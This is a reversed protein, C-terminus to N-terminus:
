HQQWYQRSANKRNCLGSASSSCRQRERRREGTDRHINAIRWSSIRSAELAARRVKKPHIHQVSFGMMNELRIKIYTTNLSLTALQFFLLLWQGSEPSNRFVLISGGVRDSNKYLKALLPATTHRLAKVHEESSGVEQTPFNKGSCHTWLSKLPIHFCCPTNLGIKKCQNCLMKM